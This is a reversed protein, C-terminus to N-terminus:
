EWTCILLQKRLNRGEEIQMEEITKLKLIHGKINCNQVSCLRIFFSGCKREDHIKSGINEFKWLSKSAFKQM